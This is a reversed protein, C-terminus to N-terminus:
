LWEAELYGQATDSIGRENTFQPLFGLQERMKRTDFARDKTFFALRRRYLFPVVGLRKSVWEIADAIAFLPRAPLSVFRVRTDLIKSMQTLMTVVDTPEPNGCIFVEGEAAPHHSCLLICAALDEVHILHYLTNHGDLLPFFGWQAFKFLKLLRRDGPGMIPTPRVVAISLGERDAFDRIWLEGELKTRQYIDGPAYPAAEDAPPDAIHGHVGVTSTHVFRRFGPQQLAAEALLQTSRVHVQHYEEDSAGAERFCAALHFIYQVGAVAEAVVEEDYVNGQLWTVNRAQSLARASDRAIGRVRAGAALLQAVVSRGTFGTGGTVLVEANQLAALM